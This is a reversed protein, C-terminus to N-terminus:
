RDFIPLPLHGFVPTHRPGPPSPEVWQRRHPRLQTGLQFPSRAQLGQRQQGPQLFAIGSLVAVFQQPGQLPAHTLPTSQRSRGLLHEEGLHVFRAPQTSRVEGVHVVKLHRDLSLAKLVHHIVEHEGVRVPFMHRDTERLTEGTQALTQLVRQPGQSAHRLSMAGVAHRQRYMRVAVWFDERLLVLRQQSMIADRALRGVRRAAVFVAVAFLGM